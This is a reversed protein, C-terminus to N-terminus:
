GASLKELSEDIKAKHDAYADKIGSIIPAWADPKDAVWEMFLEKSYPILDPTGGTILDSEKANWGTVFEALISRITAGDGPMEEMELNTPRRATIVLGGAEIEIRRNAKIKNILAQSM